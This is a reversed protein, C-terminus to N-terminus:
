NSKKAHFYVYFCDAYPDKVIDNQIIEFGLTKYLKEYDIVIKEHPLVTKGTVVCNIIENTNEAHIVTKCIRSIETIISVAIIYPIHMMVTCTFGVDFYDDPYQKLDHLSQKFIKADVKINPPIVDTRSFFNELM